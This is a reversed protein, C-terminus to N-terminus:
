LSKTWTRCINNSWIVLFLGSAEWYSAHRIILVYGIVGLLLGTILSWKRNMERTGSSHPQGRPFYRRRPRQHRGGM